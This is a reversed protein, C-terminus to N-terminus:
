VVNVIRIINAMRHLVAARVTLSITGFSESGKRHPTGIRVEIM